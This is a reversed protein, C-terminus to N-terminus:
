IKCFFSPERDSVNKNHKHFSQSTLAPKHGSLTADREEGCINLERINTSLFNGFSGDRKHETNLPNMEPLATGFSSKWKWNMVSIEAKFM